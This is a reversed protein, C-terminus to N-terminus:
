VPKGIASPRRRRILLAAGWAIAAGVMGTLLGGAIDIPWHIGVFVRAFGILVAAALALVGLKRFPTFLLLGLGIATAATTHDSPFSAGAAHAVLQHVHQTTFPRQDVYLHSALQLLAFSVALAAAFYGLAPWQRRHGLVMACGAAVAFLLYILWSACFIMVHDLLWNHGAWGNITRLLQLNM